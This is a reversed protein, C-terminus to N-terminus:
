YFQKVKIANTYSGFISFSFSASKANQTLRLFSIIFVVLNANVNNENTLECLLYIFKKKKM